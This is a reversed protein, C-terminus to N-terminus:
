EFRYGVGKVTVIRSGARAGLKQRLSKIHVNLTNTRPEGGWIRAALEERRVPRPRAKALEFLVEFEKATLGRVPAGDAKVERTEANVSLEDDGLQSASTWDRDVRRLLADIWLLLEKATIPKTLYHDAGAAFGREKDAAGENGTLMIVPVAARAPHRRIHECVSCGSGDKLNLDLVVLDFPLADFLRRAEAVADVTMTEHGRSKLVDCVALAAEPNDEVVLIRRVPPPM